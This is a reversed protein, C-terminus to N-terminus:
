LGSGSKAEARPREEAATVSARRSPVYTTASPWFAAVAPFPCPTEHNLCREGRQFAQFGLAADFESFDPRVQLSPQGQGRRPAQPKVM